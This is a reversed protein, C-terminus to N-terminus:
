QRPQIWASAAPEYSDSRSSKNAVDVAERRAALVRSGDFALGAALIMVGTMALIILANATGRDREVRGSM